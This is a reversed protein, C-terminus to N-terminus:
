TKCPFSTSTKSQWVMSFSVHSLVESLWTYETNNDVISYYNWFALATKTFILFISKPGDTHLVMPDPHYKLIVNSQARAIFESVGCM